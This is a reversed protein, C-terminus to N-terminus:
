IREAMRRDTREEILTRLQKVEGTLMQLSESVEHMDGRVLKRWEELQEIRADHRGVLFVIRALIVALTVLIGVLAVLTSGSVQMM